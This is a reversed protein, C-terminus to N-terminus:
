NTLLISVTSLKSFNTGPTIIAQQFPKYQENEVEAITGVLLGRPINSELGSTIIQDGVMLIEDRPILSMKLSIGFGGEIVGISKDRNLVTAGVRSQNDNLLRVTSLNKDVKIIKGIIIGDSVIVPDNMKVGDNEGRDLLITQDTTLMEKGVVNSLLHNVPYTKFFGLQKELEFNQDKLMKNEAEVVSNKENESTCEAFAAIFESRNKFFRYDNGLKISLGNMKGFFPVTLNQVVTEIPRLWGIYYFFVILLFVSGVALYTTKEKPRM